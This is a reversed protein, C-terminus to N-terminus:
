PVHLFYWSLSSFDTAICTWRFEKLNSLIQTHKNITNNVTNFFFYINCVKLNKQLNISSISLHCIKPYGCLWIKRFDMLRIVASMQIGQSIQAGQMIYASRSNKLNIDTQRDTRGDCKKHEDAEASPEHKKSSDQKWSFWHNYKLTKKQKHWQFCNTLFYDTCQM